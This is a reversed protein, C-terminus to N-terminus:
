TESLHESIFRSLTKALLLSRESVDAIKAELARLYLWYALLVEPTLGVAIFAVALVFRLRVGRSPGINAQIGNM